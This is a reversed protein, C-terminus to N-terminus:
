GQEAKSNQNQSVALWVRNRLSRALRRGRVSRNREQWDREFPPPEAARVRRHAVIWIRILADM